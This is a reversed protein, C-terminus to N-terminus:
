EHSFERRMQYWVVNGHVSESVGENVFGFKEYYPIMHTKCTLVLGKRGEEEALHILANLVMGAYGHKQCDPKTDLGFIMQWKGNEDHMDAKEYMEDQLDKEDTCFGNIFSVIEGDKELILFHDPYVSLRYFITNRDAAEAAPFCEAEIQSLADADRMNGKRIRIEEM